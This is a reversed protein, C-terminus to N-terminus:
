YGDATLDLEQVYDTLRVVKTTLEGNASLELERYGPKAGDLAFDSSGPKFQVCTSPTSLYLVGEIERTVEQHIHGNLVVKVQPYQRILAKFEDANVLNIENLWQCSTQYAQHHFAILAPKDPHKELQETLLALEQSALEGHTKGLVQSNLFILQWGNIITNKILAKPAVSHMMDWDDHNGNMWVYPVPLTDLQEKLWQYSELSHDQTLDGTMLFLEPLHDSLRINDLIAQFSNNTDAGLLRGSDVGFLHTDTLQIIHTRSM